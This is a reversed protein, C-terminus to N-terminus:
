AISEEYNQPWGAMIDISEPNTSADSQAHLVEAYTFLQADLAAVAAFVDLALQNTLPLLVGAMTKWHVSPVTGGTIAVTYLGLQRIRNDADTHFWHDGAKAGTATRRDREARISLWVAERRHALPVRPQGNEDPEVPKGLLSAYLEPEVKVTGNPQGVGIHWGAPGYYITM